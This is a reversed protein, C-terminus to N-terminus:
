KSLGCDINWFEWEYVQRCFRLVNFYIRLLHSFRVVLRLRSIAPCVYAFSSSVVTDLENLIHHTVGVQSTTGSVYQWM